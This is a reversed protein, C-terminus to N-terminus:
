PITSIEPGNGSIAAPSSRTAEDSAAIMMANTGSILATSARRKSWESRGVGSRARPRSIPKEPTIASTPISTAPVL